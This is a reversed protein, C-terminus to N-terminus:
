YFQDPDLAYGMMEQYFEPPIGDSSATLSFDTLFSFQAPAENSELKANEDVPPPPRGLGEVSILDVFESIARSDRVTCVSVLKRVKTPREETPLSHFKKLCLSFAGEFSMDEIKSDVVSAAVSPDFTSSSSVSLPAQPAVSRLMQFMAAFDEQQKRQREEIRELSDFVVDTHPKKKLKEGNIRRVQDPKSVVKIASSTTRYIQKRLEDSVSIHLRFLMDEHQSTLVKMRIELTAEDVKKENLHVKFECPKTNLLNVKKGENPNESDYHVDVGVTCRGFDIRDLPTKVSNGFNLVINFPTNKVVVHVDRPIGNKAVIQKALSEQSVVALVPLQKNSNM